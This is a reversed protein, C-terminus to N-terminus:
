TKSGIVATDHRACNLAEKRGDIRNRGRRLLKPFGGQPPISRVTILGKLELQKPPPAPYQGRTQGCDARLKLAMTKRCGQYLRSQPCFIPQQQFRGFDWRRASVGTEAGAVGACGPDGGSTEGTREVASINAAKCGAQRLFTQPSRLRARRPQDFCSM